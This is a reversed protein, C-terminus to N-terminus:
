HDLLIRFGGEIGGGIGEDYQTWVKPFSSTPLDLHQEKARPCEHDDPLNVCRRAQRQGNRVQLIHCFRANSELSVRPLKFSTTGRVEGTQLSPSVEGELERESKPSPPVFDEKREEDGLSALSVRLSTPATDPVM